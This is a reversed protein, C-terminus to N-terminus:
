GPTSAASAARTAAVAKSQEAAVRHQARYRRLLEDPPPANHALWERMAGVEGLRAKRRLDDTM